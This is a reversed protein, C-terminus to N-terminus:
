RNPSIGPRRRLFAAAVGVLAALAAAVTWGLWPRARWSEGVHGVALHEFNAVIGHEPALEVGRDTISAGDVDLITLCVKQGLQWSEYDGGVGNAILATSGIKRRVCGHVHGSLLYRVRSKELWEAFPEFGPRVGGKEDVPPVHMALVVADGAPARAVLTELRAPDPPNGFANNVVIFSIQGRRFSSELPGVWRTFRSPDGKIDHNGPAVAMPARLGSRHFVASVLRYHGEDNSSVLDGTQLILGAKAEAVAGLVNALNGLGKQVDGLVAVRFAAGPVEPAPPPMPWRASGMALNVIGCAGLFVLLLTGLVATGWAAIKV